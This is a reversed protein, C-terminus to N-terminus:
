KQDNYNEIFEIVTEWVLSIEIYTMADAIKEYDTRFDDLDNVLELIKRAVPMLWDWSEHYKGSTAYGDAFTLETVGMFEAILKNGEITTM